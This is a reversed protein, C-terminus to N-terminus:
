FFPKGKILKILLRLGFCVNDHDEGVDFSDVIEKLQEPTCGDRLLGKLYLENSMREANAKRKIAVDNLFKMELPESCEDCIMLYSHDWQGKEYVCNDCLQYKCIRCFVAAMEEGEDDLPKEGLKVTEMTDWGITVHCGDCVESKPGMFDVSVTRGAQMEVYEDYFDLPNFPHPDIKLPYMKEVEETKARKVQGSRCPELPGDDNDFGLSM